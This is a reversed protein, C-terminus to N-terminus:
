KEGGKYFNIVSMMRMRQIARLTVCSFSMCEDLYGFMLGEYGSEFDSGM